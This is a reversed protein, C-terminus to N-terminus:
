YPKIKDKKKRNIGDSKTIENSSQQGKELCGGYNIILIEMKLLM